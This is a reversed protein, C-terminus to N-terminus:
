KSLLRADAGMNAKIWPLFAEVDTYVGPLTGCATAGWSVIGVLVARRSPNTVPDAPRRPDFSPNRFLETMPGGSDGDCADKGPTAGTACVTGAAVLPTPAAGTSSGWTKVCGAHDIVVLSVEQLSPDAFAHFMEGAKLHENPDNVTARGWGTVTVEDNVKLPRSGLAMGALPIARLHVKAPGSIVRPAFHVLAIDNVPQGGSKSGSDYDRHSIIDAVNYLSGAESLNQIGLQIQFGQRKWDETPVCHAATLIWGPAIYSAGCWHQWAGAPASKLQRPGFKAAGRAHGNPGSEATPWTPLIRIEAQWPVSGPAADHGGVVRHGTDDDAAVPPPPVAAAQAGVSPPAAPTEQAAVPSGALLLVVAGRLWLGSM